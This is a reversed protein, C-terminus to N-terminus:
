KKFLLHLTKIKSGQLNQNVYLKNINFQDQKKLGRHKYM